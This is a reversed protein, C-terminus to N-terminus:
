RAPNAASIEGVIKQLSVQLKETLNASIEGVKSVESVGSFPHGAAGLDDREEHLPARVRLRAEGVAEGRRREM